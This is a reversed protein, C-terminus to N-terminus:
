EEISYIEIKRPADIIERMVTPPIYIAAVMIRPTIGTKSQYDDASAVYRMIDSKKMSSTIEFIFHAGNKIVIDIERDGYYGTAVSYGTDQLLGTVTNRFTSEAMIGWRSGIATLSDKMVKFGQEMTQALEELKIETRKQAHSLEEISIETRKQADNLKEVSIETRKQAEALEKVTGATDKVISKLESFDEKTVHVEKIRQDIIQIMEAKIAPTIKFSKIIKKQM